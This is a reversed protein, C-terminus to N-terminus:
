YNFMDQIIDEPNQSPIKDEGNNNEDEKPLQQVHLHKHEVLIGLHFPQFEEPKTLHGCKLCKYRTPMDNLNIVSFDRRLPEYIDETMWTHYSVSCFVYQEAQRMKLETMFWYRHKRGGSKLKRQNDM